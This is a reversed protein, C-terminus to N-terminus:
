RTRGRFHNMFDFYGVPTSYEGDIEDDITIGEDLYWERLPKKKFAADHGDRYASTPPESKIFRGTIDNKAVNGTAM